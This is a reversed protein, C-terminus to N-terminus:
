RTKTKIHSYVEERTLRLNFQLKPLVVSDAGKLYIIYANDRHRRLVVSMLKRNSEFRFTHIHDFGVEQEKYKVIIQGLKPKNKVKLQFQYSMQLLARDDESSVVLKEGGDPTKVIKGSNALVM